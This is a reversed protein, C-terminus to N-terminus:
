RTFKKLLWIKIKFIFWVLELIAMPAADSKRLGLKIIRTYGGKRSKYKPAIEKILQKALEKPNIPSEKWELWDEIKQYIKYTKSKYEGKLYDFNHHNRLDLTYEEYYGYKNEESLEITVYYFIGNRYFEEIDWSYIM